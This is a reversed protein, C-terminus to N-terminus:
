GLHADKRSYICAETVIMDLPVDWPNPTLAEVRQCEHAIGILRPRRWHRRRRLYALTRDYYGGGMGLRNCRADFGVLPVLLLDLAWPLRVRRNRLRPEPIGFRNNALPDGPRYELFWLRRHPHPRLVPLFCRKRRTHAQQLLPCPDIEGDSSWYVGVRCTRLFALQRGLSRALARAHCRQEAPGLAVRAARLRCRLTGAPTMSIPLSM